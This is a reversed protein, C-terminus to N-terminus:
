ARGTINERNWRAGVKKMKETAKDFRQEETVENGIVDGLYKERAGEKLITLKVGIQTNTMVQKRTSGIKLIMTKGEHLASGSADEYKKMTMRAEKLQENPERLCICSDDAFLSIKDERGSVPEVIGKVSESERVAIAMLELVCIFLFPSLPCGQRVGGRTMVVSSLENNVEIVSGVDSYLAEIYQIFDPGFNMQKLTKIMFERDVRDYAKKFDMLILAGEVDEENCYQIIEKVLILNGTIDGEKIFGQQDKEIVSNLVPRMRNTVIKALLKYDACLLSIPRYNSMRNRDGKKYLIKVVALKMTTTM